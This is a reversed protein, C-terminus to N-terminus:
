RHQARLDEWLHKMFTMNPTYGPPFKVKLAAELEDVMRSPYQQM